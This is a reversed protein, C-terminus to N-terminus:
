VGSAISTIARERRPCVVDLAPDLSPRVRFQAGEGDSELGAGRRQIGTAQLARCVTRAGHSLRQWQAAGASVGAEQLRRHLACTPLRRIALRRNSAMGMLHKNGPRRAARARRRIESKSRHLIEEARPHGRLALNHTVTDALSQAQPCLLRAAADRAAHRIQVPSGGGPARARAAKPPSQRLDSPICASSCRAPGCGCRSSSRRWSPRPRLRGQAAAARDARYIKWLRQINCAIRASRKEIKFRRSKGHRGLRWAAEAGRRPDPIPRAAISIPSNSM